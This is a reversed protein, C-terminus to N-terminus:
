QGLTRKIRALAAAAEVRRQEQYPLMMAAEFQRCYGALKEDEESLHALADWAADDPPRDECVALAADLAALWRAVAKQHPM